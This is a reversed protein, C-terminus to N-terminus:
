PYERDIDLVNALTVSIDSPTQKYIVDDGLVYSEPMDKHKFGRYIRHTEGDDITDADSRTADLESDVGDLTNVIFNDESGQITNYMYKIKALSADPIGLSNERGDTPYRMDGTFMVFSAEHDRANRELM